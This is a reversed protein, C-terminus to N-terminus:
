ASRFQSVSLAYTVMLTELIPWLVGAQPRARGELSEDQVPEVYGMERPARSKSWAKTELGQRRDVPVRGALIAAAPRTRSSSCHKLTMHNQRTATTYTVCVNENRLARSWIGSTSSLLSAVSMAVATRANHM